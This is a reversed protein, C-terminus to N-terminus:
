KKPPKDTVDIASAWPFELSRLAGSHYERWYLVAVVLVVAAMFFWASIFWAPVALGIYYARLGQNFDKSALTSIWATRRVWEDDVSGKEAPAAGVLVACYNFQRLGWTFKFFAHVFIVILVMLRLQWQILSTKDAFPLQHLTLLTDTSTGLATFLGVLILLTASIFFSSGQSLQQLILMDSTRNERHLVQTMWRYRNRHMTARLSHERPKGDDTYVTYGVWMVVLWLVGLIDIFPLENFM